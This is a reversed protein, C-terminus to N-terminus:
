RGLLRGMESVGSPTPPLMKNMERPKPRSPLGGLINTNYNSRPYALSDTAFINGIDIPKFQRKQIDKINRIGEAGSRFAEVPSMAGSSGLMNVGKVKELANTAKTNSGTFRNMQSPDTDYGLPRDDTISKTHMPKDIDFIFPDQGGGLNYTVNTQFGEMESPLISYGQIQPLGLDEAAHNYTGVRRNVLGRVIRKDFDQDPDEASIVDLTQKLAESYDRDVLAQRFNPFLTGTNYMLDSAAIKMSDPLSDFDLEEDERMLEVNYGVIRDALKRDDTETAAYEKLADPILTIGYGRTSSNGEVSNDTGEAGEFEELRDLITNRWYPVEPETAQVQRPNQRPTQRPTAPGVGYVTSNGVGGVRRLRGQEGLRNITDNGRLDIRRDEGLGAFNDRSIYMNGQRGGFPDRMPIILTGRYDSYKDEAM